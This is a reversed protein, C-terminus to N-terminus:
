GAVPLVPMTLAARTAEAAETILRATHSFDLMSLGSVDPTPLLTVRVGEPPQPLNQDLAYRAVNFAELLVMLPGLREPLRPKGRSGIDSVYIETADLEVARSVPVPALVGGDVHRRGDIVVPPFIGPLAATAALIQAPSGHDWWCAGAADLDTTAVQVPVALEGLDAAPCFREILEVLRDPSCLHDRGTWLNVATRRHALGFIDKSRLTLWLSALEEVRAASPDVAMFAANLAGVSCGIFLDPTVGAEYLARLQGVQVAGFVSGGSLVVATKRGRRPRPHRTLRGRLRETRPQPHQSM